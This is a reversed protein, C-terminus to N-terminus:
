ADSLESSRHWAKDPAGYTRFEPEEPEDIEDIAVVKYSWGRDRAVVSPTNTSKDIFFYFDHGVLEMNDIAQDVTVPTAPFSKRRVLVLPEYHHHSAPEAEHDAGGHPIYTLLSSPGEGEAGLAAAYFSRATELPAATMEAPTHSPPAQMMIGDRVHSSEASPRTSSGAPAPLAKLSALREIRAPVDQGRSKLLDRHARAIIINARTIRAM